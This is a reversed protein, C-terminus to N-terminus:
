SNLLKTARQYAEISEFSCNIESDSTMAIDQATYEQLMPFSSYRRLSFPNVLVVNGPVLSSKILSGTEDTYGVGVALVVALVHKNEETSSRFDNPQTALVIGGKSVLEEKPLVEVILRSGHVVFLSPDEDLRLFRELYKSKM